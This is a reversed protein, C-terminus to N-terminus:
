FKWHVFSTYFNESSFNGTNLILKFTTDTLCATPVPTPPPATPSNTPPPPVTCCPFTTNGLCADAEHYRIMGHGYSTDKGPDGLDEATLEMANRIDTNTCQPYKNWLLLAVGAVHPAAMSTGSKTDYDTGVTSLIRSGPAAIDVEDNIQSYSAISDDSDTAAVSVISSYSAPYFYGSDAYNGAAAVILIGDNDFLGQWFQAQAESYSGGGLSLNIIKAGSDRCHEAAAIVTSTYTWGCRESVTGTSIDNHGFVKVIKMDPAGPYIGIIGENNDIASVIGAVHTGHTCHDIDFSNDAGVGQNPDANTADQPLDPNSMMYGSDIICIPHLMSTPLDNPDLINGDFVRQISWPVSQALNRNNSDYGNDMLKLPYVPEDKELHLGLNRINQQIRELEEETADSSIEIVLIKEENGVELKREQHIDGSPLEVVLLKEQGQGSTTDVIEVGPLDINQAESETAYAGQAKVVFFRNPNPNNPVKIFNM